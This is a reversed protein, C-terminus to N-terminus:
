HNEDHGAPAGFAQKLHEIGHRLLSRVTASECQMIEAAERTSMHGFYSLTVAQQQREPLQFIAKKLMISDEQAALDKIPDNEAFQEPRQQQVESHQQRRSNSRWWDCVANTVCRILYRQAEEARLEFPAKEFFRTFTDHLADEADAENPLSARAINLLRDKCCRYITEVDYSSM